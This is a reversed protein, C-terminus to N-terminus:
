MFGKEIALWEPMTATLGVGVKELRVLSKPVWQANNPDGDDSICVAMDTERHLTVDFEVVDDEDM